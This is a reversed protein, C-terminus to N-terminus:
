TGILALNRTNSRKMVKTWRNPESGYSQTRLELDSAVAHVIKREVRTM